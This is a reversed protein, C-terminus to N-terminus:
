SVVCSTNWKEHEFALNCHSYLPICLCHYLGVSKVFFYEKWTIKIIIDSGNNIPEQDLKKTWGGISLSKINLYMFM